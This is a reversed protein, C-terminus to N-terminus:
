KLKCEFKDKWFLRAYTYPIFKWISNLAWSIFKLFKNDSKKTDFDYGERNLYFISYFLPSFPKTYKNNKFVLGNGSKRVIWKHSNAPLLVETIPGPTEIYGSKSIRQLENCFMIPDDIHEAIHSAIVVDFKKQKFPIALADGMIFYKDKPIELKATTRHITDGTYKDLIVNARRNPQHGSGVDLVKWDPNIKLVKQTNGAKWHYISKTYAQYTLDSITEPSFMKKGFEHLKVKDYKYSNDLM